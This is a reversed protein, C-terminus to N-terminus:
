PTKIDPDDNDEKITKVPADPDPDDDVDPLKDWGFGPELNIIVYPVVSVECEVIHPQLNLRIVVHTDRFLSRLNPLRVDPFAQTKLGGEREETLVINLMYEQELGQAFTSTTAINKSEPLYFTPLATTKAKELKLTQGSNAYQLLDKPAIQQAGEPIAYELIWGRNDALEKNPENAQSEDAAYKLWDIWFLEEGDDIKFPAKVGIEDKNAKNVKYVGADENLHPMLYMSSAPASLTFSKVTVDCDRNNNFEIDFKTADYVVYFDKEIHEAEGISVSYCSTMPLPKSYDPVFRYENIFQEFGKMGTQRWELADHLRGDSVSSENAILYVEKQGKKQLDLEEVHEIKPEQSFDLFVNHEIVGSEDLVIIRLSHMQENPSSGAAYTARSTAGVHLLLKYKQLEYSQQQQEEVIDACSVNFLVPWVLTLCFLIIHRIRNNM